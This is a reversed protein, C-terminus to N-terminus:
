RQPCAAGRGWRPIPMYRRLVAHAGTAARLCASRQGRRGCEVYRGRAQESGLSLQTGTGKGNASSTQEHDPSRKMPQRRARRAPAEPSYRPHHPDLHPSRRHHFRGPGRAKRRSGRAPSSRRRWRSCPLPSCRSRAQTCPQPRGSRERAWRSRCAGKHRARWRRRTTRRRGSHTCGPGFPVSRRATHPPDVLCRGPRCKCWTRCRSM